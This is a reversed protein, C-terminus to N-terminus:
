ITRSAPNGYLTRTSSDPTKALRCWGGNEGDEQNVRAVEVHVSVVELVTALDICRHFHTCTITEIETAYTYLCKDSKASQIVDHVNCNNIIVDMELSLLHKWPTFSSTFLECTCMMALKIDKMTCTWVPFIWPKTSSQWSRLLIWEFCLVHKVPTERPKGWNRCAFMPITGSILGRGSGVVDKGVWWENIAMENSAM